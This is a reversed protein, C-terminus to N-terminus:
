TMAGPKTGRREKARAFSLNGFGLVLEATEREKPDLEGFWSVSPTRRAWLPMDVSVPSAYHLYLVYREKTAPRSGYHYCNCTDVLAATGRPGLLPTGEAVVGAGYVVTDDLWELRRHVSGRARLRDFIQRSERAAIVTLPGTDADVDRVYIQCKVQRYDEFDLHYSQSEGGFFKNPSYSLGARHLVPMVGLYRAIPGLLVPDRALDFIPKHEAEHLPFEFTQLFQKRSAAAGQKFLAKERLGDCYDLAAEAVRHGALQLLLYGREPEIEGPLEAIQMRALRERERFEGPYMAKMMSYYRRAATMTDPRLRGAYRPYRYLHRLKAKLKESKGLM